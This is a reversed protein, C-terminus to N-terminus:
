PRSGDVILGLSELASLLSQIASGDSRSGSVLPRPVPPVGNFSLKTVGGICQFHMIESQNARFFIDHEGQTVLALPM